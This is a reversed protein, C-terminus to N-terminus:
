FMQYLQAMPLREAPAPEVVDGDIAIRFSEPDIDIHPLADNLVM